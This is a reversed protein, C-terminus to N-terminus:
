SARGALRLDRAWQAECHAQLAHRYWRKPRLLAPAPLEGREVAASVADYSGVGILQACDTWTCVLPLHDWSAPM